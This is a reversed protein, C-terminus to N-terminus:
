RRDRGVQVRHGPRPTDPSARVRLTRNRVPLFARRASRASPFCRRDAIAQVEFSKLRLDATVGAVALAAFDAEEVTVLFDFTVAACRNQLRALLCAQLQGEATSDTDAVGAYAREFRALQTIQAGTVDTFGGFLVHPDTDVGGFAVDFEFESRFSRCHSRSQLAGLVREGVQPFLFPFLQPFFQVRNVVLHEGVEAFAVATVDLRHNRHLSLNDHDATHQQQARSGFGRPSQAGRTETHGLDQLVHLDAVVHHVALPIPHVIGINMGRHPVPVGSRARLGPLMRM